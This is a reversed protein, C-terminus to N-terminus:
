RAVPQRAPVTAAPATLAPAPEIKGLEALIESYQPNELEKSVIDWKSKMTGAGTGSSGSNFLMLDRSYVITIGKQELIPKFRTMETEFEAIVGTFRAVLEQNTKKFPWNTMVGSYITPYRTKAHYLYYVMFLRFEPLAFYASYYPQVALVMNGPTVPLKELYCRILDVALRCDLYYANMENLMGYVGEVQVMNYDIIYANYRFASKMAQPAIADLEKTNYSATVWVFSPQMPKLCFAMYNYAAAKGRLIRYQLNRSLYHYSEHVITPIAKLVNALGSQGSGRHIRLIDSTMRKGNPLTWTWALVYYSEPSYEKLIEMCLAEDSGAPFAKSHDPIVATDTYEGGGKVLSAQTPFL